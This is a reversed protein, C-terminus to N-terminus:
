TIIKYTIVRKRTKNADPVDDGIRTPEDETSSSSGSENTKVEDDQYYRGSYEIIKGNSM